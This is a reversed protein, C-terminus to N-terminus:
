MGGHDPIKKLIQDATKLARKFTRSEYLALLEKFLAQEKHPLPKKQQKSTMLKAIQEILSLCYDVQRVPPTVYGSYRTDMVNM